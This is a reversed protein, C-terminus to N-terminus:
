SPVQRRGRRGRWSPRHRFEGLPSSYMSPSRGGPTSEEVMLEHQLDSFSMPNGFQPSYWGKAKGGAKSSGHLSGRITHRQRNHFVGAAVGGDGVRVARGPARVGYVICPGETRLERVRAALVISGAAIRGSRIGIGEMVISGPEVEVRPGPREGVYFVGDEVQACFLSRCVEGRGTNELVSAYAEYMSKLTGLDAFVADEGPDAVGIPGLPRPSPNRANEFVSNARDWLEPNRLPRRRRWEAKGMTVPELVDMSLDIGIGILDAYHRVLLSAADPSLSWDWWNARAEGGSQAFESLIAAVDAKEVLQLLNEETPSARLLGLQTLSHLVPLQGPINISALKRRLDGDDAWRPEGSAGMLGSAQAEARFSTGNAFIQVHQGGASGPPREWALLHDGAAIHIRGPEVEDLIQHYQALVLEILRLSRDGLRAPTRIMSKNGGEAATLPYARTGQGAVLVVLCRGQDEPMGRLRLLRRVRQVAFLSADFNGGKWPRGLEDLSALDVAGDGFVANWGGKGAFHRRLRERQHRNSAVVLTVDFTRGAGLNEWMRPVYRM